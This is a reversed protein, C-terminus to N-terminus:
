TVWQLRLDSVVSLNSVVGLGIMVSMFSIVRIDSVLSMISMAIGVSGGGEEIGRFLM